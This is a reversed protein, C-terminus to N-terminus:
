LLIAGPKEWDYRLHGDPFFILQRIDQAEPQRTLCNSLCVNQGDVDYVIAGHPLRLLESGTTDLYARLDAIRGAGLMHEHAWRSVDADRSANPANVPTITLQEVKHQKAFAIMRELELPADIGGDVAVCTLRRTFGFGGLKDLLGPLDIYEKAYPMYIEHNKDPDYSVVSTAITNLGLDYWRRLFGDYHQPRQMFLIGNSQLEVIPFDHKALAELYQTIQQPFATPEGKGTILATTAGHHQAFGCGKHFNRWNVEPLATTIGQLPTMKAVCFPCRANCAESGALISYTTFKM